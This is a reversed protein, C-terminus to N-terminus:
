RRAKREFTRLNAADVILEALARGICDHVRAALRADRGGAQLDFTGDEAWHRMLGFRDFLSAGHALAAARMTDAYPEVPIVSETRPSYQMNVLIVDAGGAQL